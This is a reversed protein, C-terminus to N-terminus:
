ANITKMYPYSERLHKENHAYIVLKHLCCKPPCRLRRSRLFRSLTSADLPRSITLVLTKLKPVLAGALDAKRESEPLTLMNLVANLGDGETIEMELEKLRPVAQLFMRLTRPTMSKTVVISMRRLLADNCRLLYNQIARSVHPYRAWDIFGGCLTLSCLNPTDLQSFMLPYECSTASDLALHKLNPCVLRESAIPSQLTEWLDVVASDAGCQAVFLFQLNPCDRIYACTLEANIRETPDTNSLNLFRIGDMDILHTLRSFPFTFTYWEDVYRHRMGCNRLAVRQVKSQFNILPDDAFAVVPGRHWWKFSAVEDEHFSLALHTLQPFLGPPLAHVRELSVGDLALRTLTAVKAFPILTLEVVSPETYLPFPHNDPLVLRNRLPITINLSVPLETGLNLSLYRAYAHFRKHCPSNENEIIKFSRWFSAHTLCMRRWQTCVKSLALIPSTPHLTTSISPSLVYAFITLLIDECLVNIPAPNRPPM